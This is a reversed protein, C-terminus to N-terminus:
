EDRLGELTVGIVPAMEQNVKITSKKKLDAMWQDFRLDQEEKMLDDMIREKVEPFSQMRKPRWETLQFLHYGFDDKLPKSIEGPKLDRLVKVFASSLRDTDMFGWDGGQSKELGESFTMTIRPFAEGMQLSNLVKQLETKKRVVLHRARVAEPKWYDSLHSWYFERAEEPTVQVKANVEKDVLKRALQEQLLKRKWADESVGQRKLLSIFDEPANKFAEHFTGEEEGATLQLGIKRAEQVLLRRNIVQEFLRRKIIRMDGESVAEYHITMLRFEN